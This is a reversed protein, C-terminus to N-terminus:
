ADLCQRVARALQPPRYPKQLFSTSPGTALDLAATEASYGTSFIIKLDPKQKRLHQALERGSLGGPMVMDTVLLHIQDHHQKWLVVADLGTGAELVTYGLDKLIAAALERLLAEDEVLLITESGGRWPEPAAAEAPAAAVPGAVAPLLVSFTTGRGVESEVEIWGQHQEVIGFVTALGLGTGKGPGKTTFFPEFIRALTAKDMGCGTDAVKVCVFAGPRAGPQSQAHDPTVAEASTSVTLKGGGPMADRANVALNLLIQEIMGEDASVAPLSDPRKVTLAITEGILREIMRSMRVVTERLDLRRPQLDQKRSFALLQRTLSAAHESSNLIQEVAERQDDRPAKALLREAYGQMITLLNNFDHAVGSALQGIAEMKQSQRLQAEMTSRAQANALVSAVAFLFGLEDETFECPTRSHVSLLGWPPGGQRPIAVTIGSVVGHEKLFDPVVFRTIAALDKVIVPEASHLAYDMMSGPSALLPAADVAPPKWGAGARMRLTQGDPQLEFIACFDAACTQTVFMVAHDLLIGQETTALATQSLAAVAMQQHARRLLVSATQQHESRDQVSATYGALRGQEDRLAVAVLRGRFTTGDQRQCDLEGVFRGEEAAIKLQAEPAGGLAALTTFCATLKQGAMDAASRGFVEQAGSNWSTVRGERDLLVVALGPFTESALRFPDVNGQWPKFTQERARRHLFSTLAVVAPLVATWVLWNQLRATGSWHEAFLYFSLYVWALGASIFGQKFGGVYASFAVALVLVVPLYVVNVRHWVASVLGIIVAMTLLPGFLNQLDQLLGPEPAPADDLSASRWARLRRPLWRLASDVAGAGLRTGAGGPRPPGARQPERKIPM